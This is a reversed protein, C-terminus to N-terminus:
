VDFTEKTAFSHAIGELRQPIDRVTHLKDNLGHVVNIFTSSLKLREKADEHELPHNLRGRWVLQQNNRSVPLGSSWYDAFLDVDIHYYIAAYRIPEM